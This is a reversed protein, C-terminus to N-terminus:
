RARCTTFVVGDKECTQLQISAIMEPSLLSPLDQILGQGTYKLVAEKVTWIKMFEADPDPATRIQRIEEENCCRQLLPENVTREISEIDCGVPGQEDIVCLVGKLCHSLNFHINPYEKLVPKGHELYDFSVEDAIGFDKRLGEKLLLYAEACLVQGILHRFKLAQERRWAPLQPLMELELQQSTVQEPHLFLYTKM